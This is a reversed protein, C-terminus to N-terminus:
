SAKKFDATIVKGQSAITDLYDAWDQMMVRREDIFKARDYARDIKSRPAHALQRDVVEHRYGLKEKISSMVLARFGHGTMRGQYGLRRIAMLITNNSMHQRPDHHGAFVYERSGNMEQLERLVKIAQKSLPVLHPQKMKMREAPILWEANDFDIEEWKAQILESTRVFTLMMLEVALMTSPFLRAHNRRFTQIFEPLERVELAAFNKGKHLKLAGKLDAAPDREARGTAIAFRFVNSCYSKLRGTLEYAKRAEVKQLASLVQPPSIEKVPLNGITPFLDDELRKLITAAHKEDWTHINKAHWERALVEFTNEASLRQELKVEKKYASPDINNGLLKRADRCKERAESLSVEPYVGLALRKEKGNFRYKMRWYKGGTPAVELYLGQGDSLKIPKQSPKTNKCKTDSLKM